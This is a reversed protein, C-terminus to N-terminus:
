VVPTNCLELGFSSVSVRYGRGVLEQALVTLPKVHELLPLSVFSVYPPRASNATGGTVTSCVFCGCVLWLLLLRM